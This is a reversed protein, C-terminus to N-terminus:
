LIPTPIDITTALSSAAVHDRHEHTIFIADIEDINKGIENLGGLPIVKLKSQPKDSKAAKSKSLKAEVKAAKENKKM